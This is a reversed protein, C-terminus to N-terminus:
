VSCGREVDSREGAEGGCEEVAAIAMDAAVPWVSRLDVPVCECGGGCLDAQEVVEHEGVSRAVSARLCYFQFSCVFNWTERLLM